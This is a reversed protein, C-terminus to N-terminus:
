LYLIFFKFSFNYYIIFKIHFFLYIKIKIKNIYLFLLLQKIFIIKNINKLLLIFIFIEYLNLKYINQSLLCM